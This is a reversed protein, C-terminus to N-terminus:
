VDVELVVCSAYAATSQAAGFTMQLYEGVDLILLTGVPAQAAAVATQSPYAFATTGATESAIRQIIKNAADYLMIACTASVDRLVVGGLLFWRKGVPCTARFTTTSTWLTGGTADAEYNNLKRAVTLLDTVVVM